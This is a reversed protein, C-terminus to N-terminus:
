ATPPAAGPLQEAAIAAEIFRDDIAADGERVTWDLRSGLPAYTQVWGPLLELNQDSAAVNRPGAPLDRSFGGIPTRFM